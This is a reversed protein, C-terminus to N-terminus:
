GATSISKLFDPHDKELLDGITTSELLHKWENRLSELQDHLPCPNLANCKKFRLVCSNFDEVEGTIKKLDYLTYEMTSQNVSFGGFPGKMSDLVGENVLGKLVNGLFHRSVSLQDAIEDLQVRPKENRLLAIYLIGRLAYGFTKSFIMHLCSNRFDSNLHNIDNFVKIITMVSSICCWYKQGM